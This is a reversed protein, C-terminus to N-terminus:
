RGTSHEQNLKLVRRLVEGGKFSVEWGYAVAADTCSESKEFSKQAAMWNKKDDNNDSIISQVMENM